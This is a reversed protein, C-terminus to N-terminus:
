NITGIDKTEVRGNFRFLKKRKEALIQFFDFILDPPWIRSTVLFLKLGIKHLLILDLIGRFIKELNKFITQTQFLFTGSKFFEYSKQGVTFNQTLGWVVWLHGLTQFPFFFKTRM